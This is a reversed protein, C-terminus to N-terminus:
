KKEKHITHKRCNPCHKSIELRVTTNQVNRPTRYNEQNCETCVLTKEQRKGERKAM